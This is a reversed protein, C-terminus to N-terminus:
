TAPTQAMEAHCTGFVQPLCTYHILAHYKLSAHLSIEDLWLTVLAIGMFLELMLILTTRFAGAIWQLLCKPDQLSPQCSEQCRKWLSLVMLSGWVDYGVLLLCLLSTESSASQHRWLQAGYNASEPSNTLM